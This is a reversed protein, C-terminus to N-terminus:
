QLMELALIQGRGPFRFSIKLPQNEGTEKTHPLHCHIQIIFWGIKKKKSLTIIFHCTRSGLHGSM